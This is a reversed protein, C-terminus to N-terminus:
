TFSLSQLRQCDKSDQTAAVLRKIPVEEQSTKFFLLGVLVYIPINQWSHQAAFLILPFVWSFCITWWLICCNPQPHLGAPSGAMGGCHHVATRIVCDTKHDIHLEKLGFPVHNLHSSVSVNPLDLTWGKTSFQGKNGWNCSSQPRYVFDRPSMMVDGVAHKQNFTM